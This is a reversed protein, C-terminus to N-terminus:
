VAAIVSIEVLYKESSMAAQVCARAPACGPNLWANWVTNFKDFDDMNKLYVTASLIKDKCSGASLLLKEVKGLMVAAQKKVCPIEKDGVQGCLYVVNNHIVIRSMRESVEKRIIEM